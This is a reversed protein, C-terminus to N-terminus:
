SKCMKKHKSCCFFFVRGNLLRGFLFDMLFIHKLYKFLINEQERVNSNTQTKICYLIKKAEGTKKQMSRKQKKNSPESELSKRKM